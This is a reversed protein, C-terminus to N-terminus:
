RLSAMAVELVVEVVQRDPLVPPTPPAGLEGNYSESISFQPSLMVVVMFLVVLVVM